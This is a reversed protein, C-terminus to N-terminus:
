TGDHVRLRQGFEERVPFFAAGREVLGHGIVGPAEQGFCAGGAGGADEQGLARLVVAVVDDAQAVEGAPQALLCFVQTHFDERAEGGGFHEVVFIARDLAHGRAVHADALVTFRGFVELEAHFQMGLVCHEGFAGATMQALLQNGFVLEIFAAVRLGVADADLFDPLDVGTAVGGTKDHV